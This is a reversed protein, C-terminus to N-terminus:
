LGSQKEGRPAPILPSPVKDLKVKFKQYERKLRWPALIVYRLGGSMAERKVKM